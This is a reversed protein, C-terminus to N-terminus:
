KCASHKEGKIMRKTRLYLCSSIHGWITVQLHFIMKTFNTGISCWSMLWIEPGEQMTNPRTSFVFLVDELRSSDTSVPCLCTKILLLHFWGWLGGKVVEGRLGSFEYRPMLSMSTCKGGGIASALEPVLRSVKHPKLINIEHLLWNRVSRLPHAPLLSAHISTIRQPPTSFHFPSPHDTYNLILLFPKEEKLSGM